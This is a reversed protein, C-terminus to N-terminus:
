GKVEFVVNMPTSGSHRLCRVWGHYVFPSGKGALLRHERVFLHLGIGRKEHEIIERGKKSHPRTKNQPQWHFTQGDIWYDHFRQEEARGQKNLTVLLVHAKQENLVVHGSNWNGPNFEVGFLPPIQERLFFEGVALELPDLIAKLRALPRMEDTAILDDYDPNSAKLRYHGDKEKAVTRLLYQNDGASDQREIAVTEGTISGARSPTILELLLTDGDRIPHKGGNMSNGSAQAIFHDCPIKLDLSCPLSLLETSGTKAARM